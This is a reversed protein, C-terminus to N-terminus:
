RKLGPLRDLLSSKRKPPPERGCMAVSLGELVIASKSLPATECIMQGNNAAQGFVMPEFPIVFAPPIGIADGFDKTPIEPRKAVGAMNLVITPPADNPRTAKIRDVLNKANRLSALEPTAVLVVDDASNLTHRLWPSWIHPLDLVIFPATRRVRDIVIDYAESGIDFERELTAPASFLMLKESHKTLLRDLFVEDVREPALLADIVTQQPDLNFDLATTGFSLDLDVLTTNLQCREAICWALNHAVTSAGVGGKAGIVAISRGAFPKDPNAFLGAITEIVQLPTVPAMMYESVGRRMLERFLRIDNAAGIVVVKTGAEIVEALRDIKALLQAPAAASDLILLNPSVQSAFRVCAADIGGLEVSLEAKALRRDSSASQIVRAIDARDCSAHITIRPVPQITSEDGLMRAPLADDNAAQPLDDFHNDDLGEDATVVDGSGFTFDDELDFSMDADLDPADWASPQDPM